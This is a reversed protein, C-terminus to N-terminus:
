LNYTEPRMQNRNNDPLPSFPPRLYFCLYQVIFAYNNSSSLM